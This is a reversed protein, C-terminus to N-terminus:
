PRRPLAVVNFTQGEKPVAKLPGFGRWTARYLEYGSLENRLDGVTAGYVKLANPNLEIAIVPRFRNITNRAGLLFKHEAGEIDVKILDIRRIQQEEVFDDLTFCPIQEGGTEGPAGIRNYDDQVNEVIPVAGCSDSLAAQFTRINHAQNLAINKLLAKYTSPTPEFAFVTGETGVLRSALLAYYGLNSGVDVVTWGPRIAHSFYLTDWHEWEGLYYISRAVWSSPDFEYRVGRLKGARPRTWASRAYKDLAAVIHLKKPHYPAWHGYAFIVRDLIKASWSLTGRRDEEFSLPPKV